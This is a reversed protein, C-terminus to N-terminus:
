CPTFTRTRAAMLFTSIREWWELIYRSHSKTKEECREPSSRLHEILNSKFPRDLFGILASMPM